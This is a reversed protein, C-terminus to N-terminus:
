PRLAALPVVAVGDDAQYGPGFATVGILRVPGGGLKIEVPAWQGDLGEIVADAEVNSHAAMRGPLDPGSHRRHDAGPMLQSM